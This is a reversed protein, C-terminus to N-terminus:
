RQYHWAYTRKLKGFLPKAVIYQLACGKCPINYVAGKRPFKDNRETYAALMNGVVNSPTFM